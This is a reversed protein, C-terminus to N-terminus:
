IHRKVNVLCLSLFNGSIRSATFWESIHQKRRSASNSTSMDCPVMLDRLCRLQSQSYFLFPHLKFINRVSIATNSLAAHAIEFPHLYKWMELQSQIQLHTNHYFLKVDDIAADLKVEDGGSTRISLSGGSQKETVVGVQWKGASLPFFISDGISVSALIDAM